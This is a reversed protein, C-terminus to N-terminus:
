GMRGRKLETAKVGSFISDIIKKTEAESYNHTAEVFIPQNVELLDEGTFGTEDVYFTPM